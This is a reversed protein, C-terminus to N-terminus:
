FMQPNNQTGNSSVVVTIYTASNKYAQVLEIVRTAPLMIQNFKEFPRQYSLAYQGRTNNLRKFKGGKGSCIRGNPLVMYSEFFEYGPISNLLMAKSTFGSDAEIHPELRIIQMLQDLLTSQFEADAVQMLNMILGDRGM